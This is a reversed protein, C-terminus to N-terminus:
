QKKDEWCEKFVVYEGYKDLSPSTKPNDTKIHKIEVTRGDDPNPLLNDAGVDEGQPTVFSVNSAVLDAAVQNGKLGSTNDELLKAFGDDPEAVATFLGSCSWGASEFSDLAKQQPSEGEATSYSSCGVVGLATVIGIALKKRAEVGTLTDILKM